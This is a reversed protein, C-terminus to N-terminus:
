LSGLISFFPEFRLVGSLVGVAAVFLCYATVQALQTSVINWYYAPKSLGRKLKTKQRTWSQRDLRFVVYTKVLAGYIQNFYILFPYYWSLVPRATLLMLTMVWRTFAIWVAYVWWYVFGYKLSLLTVFVPGTLSTWMSLRQDVFAWWVFFPMRKPGLKIVRANTRLMNGFWRFMLQTSAKIFHPSPPDEITEVIVDPLYIQAYGRELLWYLSSKDDGTLFKFRGLRWHDLHDNTMHHIFEPHTIVDARFISMRGTLTMVRKSAALSSMVIQRQAFRMDHWSKMLQSHGELICEEDTTLAGIEPLLKFFPTSQRLLGASLMSDGDIVAVVADAPPMDRSVARFGQALADRKGTGAIRVIKLTVHPPPNFSNFIEKYLFEDALEVISAIITTEVGCNIAEEVAARVVQCSTETEIRFSTMVLYIKSPMLADTNGRVTKRWKPFLIKRYYLSRLYHTLGWSYRWIALGGIIFVFRTSVPDLAYTPLNVAAFLMLLTYILFGFSGEPIYKHWKKQM